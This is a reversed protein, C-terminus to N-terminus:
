QHFYHCKTNLHLLCRWETWFQLKVGVFSLPNAFILCIAGGFAPHRSRMLLADSINL